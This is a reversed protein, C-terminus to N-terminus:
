PDWRVDKRVPFFLGIMYFPYWVQHIVTIVFAKSFDARATNIYLMFETMMKVAIIFLLLPNYFVGILSFIFGAEIVILFLLAFYSRSDGMRSLKGIWRKRQQFLERSNQPAPTMVTLEEEHVRLIKQNNEQFANLLFVDDGSALDFDTRTSYVADYATKRFLLNAGNCLTPKVAGFTLVQLWGFEVAALKQIIKKGSMKVPLIVLDAIPLQFLFDMYNEPLVVDADLTLIFDFQAKEIGKHLAKKKGYKSNLCVQTFPIKLKNQIVNKTDDDSYDDVFIVEVSKGEFAQRNLSELLPIIRSSETHFPIIISVGTIKKAQRDIKNSMNGTLFIGVIFQAAFVVALIWFLLTFVDPM